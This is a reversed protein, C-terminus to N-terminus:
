TSNRKISFKLSVNKVDHVPTFGREPLPRDGDFTLVVSLLCGFVDHVPTFGREPLPRIFSDDNAPALNCRPGFRKKTATEREPLPRGGGFTM